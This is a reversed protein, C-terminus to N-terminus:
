TRWRTPILYISSNQLLGPHCASASAPMIPLRTLARDSNWIAFAVIVLVLGLYVALPLALAEHNRGTAIHEPRLRSRM